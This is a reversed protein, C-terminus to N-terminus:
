QFIVNNPLETDVQNM